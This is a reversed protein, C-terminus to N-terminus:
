PSGIGSIGELIKVGKKDDSKPSAKGKECVDRPVETSAMNETCHYHM